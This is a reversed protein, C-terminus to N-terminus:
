QYDIEEMQNNIKSSLNRVNLLYIRGERNEAPSKIVKTKGESGLWTDLDKWLGSWFVPLSRAIMIM